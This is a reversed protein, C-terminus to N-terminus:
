KGEKLKQITTEVHSMAKHLIEVADWENEEEELPISELAEIVHSHSPKLAIIKDNKHETIELDDIRITWGEAIRKELLDLAAINEESFDTMHKKREEDKNMVVGGHSCM